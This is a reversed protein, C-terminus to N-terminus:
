NITIKDSENSIGRNFWVTDLSPRFELFAHTTRGIEVRVGMPIRFLFGLALEDMPTKFVGDSYASIYSSNVSNITMGVGMGIYPQIMKNIFRYMVDGSLLTFSKVSLYEDVPIALKVSQGSNISATTAIQRKIIHSQYSMELAGGWHKGFGVLRLGVPYGDDSNLGNLDVKSYGPATDLSGSRNLDLGLHTEKINAVTNSFSLDAKGSGSQGMFVDFYNDLKIAPKVNVPAPQSVAVPSAPLTQQDTYAAPQQGAQPVPVVAVPAPPLADTWTKKIKVSSTTIVEATDAKIVRANVEVNDDDIDMLTGAIIAEVGLVKGLQKTTEADVVGSSELHLEKLVNELLQREIVKCKNLKVIRTTLREAIIIGSDSKRQDIYSFPLIAVKPQSLVNASASLERALKDYGDERACVPGAFLLQCACVALSLSLLRVTKM